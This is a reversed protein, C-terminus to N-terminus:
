KMLLLLQQKWSCQMNKLYTKISACYKSLCRRSRVFLCGHSCGQKRICWHAPADVINEMCSTVEPCPPPHSELCTELNRGPRLESWELRFLGTAPCFQMSITRAWKRDTHGLNKKQPPHSRLQLGCKSCRPHKTWTGFTCTYIHMFRVGFAYVFPEQAHCEMFSTWLFERFVKLLVM